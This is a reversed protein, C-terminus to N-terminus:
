RRLNPIHLIQKRSIDRRPSIGPTRLDLQYPSLLLHHGVRDCIHEGANTIGTLCSVLPHVYGYRLILDFDSAEKLLAVKDMSVLNKLVTTKAYKSDVELIM